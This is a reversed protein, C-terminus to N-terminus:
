RATAAQLRAVADIVLTKRDLNLADASAKERVLTEWLEARTALAGPPQSGGAVAGRVDGALRDLLLAFFMDYRAANAPAALDDALRHVQTWDVNPLRDFLGSVAPGLGAGAGAALTLLRRVSGGAEVILGDLAAGDAAVADESASIAALAAGKLDAEGLAGLQLTRCRSRITPLLRGPSASILFFLTRPPPEELSKLLANAAAINMDDATDVIVVRWGGDGVTHSLFGKLRRVEDVTIVTRFRKDKLDYPIRILLLGPYSLARVQATACGFALSGTRERGCTVRRGGCM